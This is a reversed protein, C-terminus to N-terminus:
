VMTIMSRLMEDSASVIKAAAMYAYQFKILNTLEEDLSVASLSDRQQELQSVLSKTFEVNRYITAATSGVDSALSNYAESITSNSTQFQFTQDKLDAIDLANVNSGKATQGDSSVIGANILSLNNKVAENIQINTTDCGAFFTNIGLAM